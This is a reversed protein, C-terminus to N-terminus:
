WWKWRPDSSPLPDKVFEIHGDIMAYNAGSNHRREVTSRAVGYDEPYVQDTNFNKEGVLITRSQSPVISRRYGWRHSFSQNKMMYINIGYSTARNEQAKFAPCILPPVAREKPPYGLVDEGIGIYPSISIYWAPAGASSADNGGLPYTQHYEDAYRNLGMAVQRLNGMCKASMAKEISGKLAPILLAALAAIVAVATLVEILTFGQTNRNM